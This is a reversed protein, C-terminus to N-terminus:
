KNIKQKNLSARILQFKISNFSLSVSYHFPSSTSPLPRLRVRPLLATDTQLSQSSVFVETLIASRRASIQFSFNGFVFCSHLGSLWWVIDTLSLLPAYIFVIMIHIKIKYFLNETTIIRYRAAKPVQSWRCPNSRHKPQSGTVTPRTTEAPKFVLTTECLEKTGRHINQHHAIIRWRLPSSNKVRQHKGSENYIFDLGYVFM